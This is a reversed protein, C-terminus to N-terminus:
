KVRVWVWVKPLVVMVRIIRDSVLHELDSWHLELKAVETGQRHHHRCETM